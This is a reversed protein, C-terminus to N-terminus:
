AEAFSIAEKKEKCLFAFWSLSFVFYNIYNTFEPLLSDSVRCNLLQEANNEFLVIENIPNSILQYNLKLGEIEVEGTNDQVKDKILTGLPQSYENLLSYVNIKRVKEAAISFVRRNDKCTIRLAQMKEDIKIRVVLRDEDYVDFQPYPNNTILKLYM